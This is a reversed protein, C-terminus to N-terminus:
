CTRRILHRSGYELSEFKLHVSTGSAYNDNGDIIFKLPQAKILEFLGGGNGDHCGVQSTKLITQAIKM